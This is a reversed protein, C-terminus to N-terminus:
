EYLPLIEHGVRLDRTCTYRASLELRIYAKKHDYLGFSTSLCLHHPGGLSYGSRVIVHGHVVVGRREGYAVELLDAAESSTSSRSWLLAGLPDSARMAHFPFERYGAYELTEFGELTDMTGAPAGHTLVVGCPTVALLPFSEFFEHIRPVQRGLVADLVAAEDPYFKPVVPGGVHSHEHNGMLSFAKFERSYQEFHLIIKASEDRYPTGLYGPWQQVVDRSPGHVIDGCFALIAERGSAMEAQHLELMREYDGLNGHLDTCVLLVGDEPLEAVRRDWVGALARQM